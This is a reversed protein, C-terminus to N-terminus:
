VLRGMLADAFEQTVSTYELSYTTFNPEPRRGACLTAARGYLGPLEAGLPVSLVGEEADFAILPMGAIQAALHKALMVDCVVAQDSAVDEVTRVCYASQYNNKVRYSGPNQDNHAEKWRGDIPNFIEISTWGPTSTRPLSPLLDKIAPLRHLMHWAADTVVTLSDNGIASYLEQIDVGEIM